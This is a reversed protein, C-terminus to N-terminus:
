HRDCEMALHLQREAGDIAKIADVRHGCFDHAATQLENRAERLENAAAAIHPHGERPQTQATRPVSIVALAM